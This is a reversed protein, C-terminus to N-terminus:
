IKNIFWLLLFYVAYNDRIMKMARSYAMKCAGENKGMVAAIEKYSLDQWLRLLVIERQDSSLKQLFEKIKEIEVKNHIKAEVDESSSLDWFDDIDSNSKKVRYYDIVTYRAVNYLWTRFASKKSDFTDIKKLVKLFIKSTLDEAIEKHMTKYFVFKYIEKAYKDYLKGMAASKGKKVLKVLKLDASM